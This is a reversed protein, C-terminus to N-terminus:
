DIGGSLGVLARGFGAQQLQNRIFGIMVRRAVATDIALEPPLEFLPGAAATSRDPQANEDTTEETSM